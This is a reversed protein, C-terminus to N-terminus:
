KHFICFKTERIPHVGSRRCAAGKWGRELDKCKGSTALQSGAKGGLLGGVGMGIM